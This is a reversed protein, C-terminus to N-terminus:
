RWISSPAAGNSAAILPERSIPKVTSDIEHESIATALKGELDELAAQQIHATEKAKEVKQEANQHEERASVVQADLREAETWVPGFKKFIAANAAAYPKYGEENHVDVRAIWYGKAM